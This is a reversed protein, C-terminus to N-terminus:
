NNQKRLEGLKTNILSHVMASLQSASLDKFSEYPIPDLVKV